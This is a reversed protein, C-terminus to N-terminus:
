QMCAPFSWRLTADPVEAYDGEFKHRFYLVDLTAHESPVLQASHWSSKAVPLGVVRVYVRAFTISMTNKM